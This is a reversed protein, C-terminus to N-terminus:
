ELKLRLFGENNTMCKVKDSAQPLKGYKAKYKGLKSKGGYVTKGNESRYPFLQSFVLKRDNHTVEIDCNIAPSEPEKWKELNRVFDKIKGDAINIIVGDFITDEPLVSREESNGPDYSM